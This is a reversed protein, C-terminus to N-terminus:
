SPRNTAQTPNAMQIAPPPSNKDHCPYHTLYKIEVKEGNTTLYRVMFM